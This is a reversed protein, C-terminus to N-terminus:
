RWLEANAWGVVFVELTGFVLASAMEFYDLLM